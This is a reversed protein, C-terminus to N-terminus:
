AFAITRGSTHQQPLRQHISTPTRFPFFCHLRSHFLRSSMYLMSHPTTLLVTNLPSFQVCPFDWQRCLEKSFGCALSGFPSSPFDSFYIILVFKGTCSNMRVQQGGRSSSQDILHAYQGAGVPLLALCFVCRTGYTRHIMLRVSRSFSAQTDGSM